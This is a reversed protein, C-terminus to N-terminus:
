SIVPNVDNMEGMITKSKFFKFHRKCQSKSTVTTIFAGGFNIKFNNNPLLM